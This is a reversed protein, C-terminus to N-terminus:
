IIKFYKITQTHCFAPLNGELAIVQSSNSEITKMKCNMAIPTSYSVALKFCKGMDKHACIRMHHM